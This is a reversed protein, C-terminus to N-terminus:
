PEGGGKQENEGTGAEVAARVAQAAEAEMEQTMENQIASLTYVITCLRQADTSGRVSMQEATEIVNQIIGRYDKMTGDEKDNQLRCSM